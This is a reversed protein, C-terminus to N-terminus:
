MFKNTTILAVGQHFYLINNPDNKLSLHKTATFHEECMVLFHQIFLLAYFTLLLDCQHDTYLRLSNILFSRTDTVASCYLILVLKLWM